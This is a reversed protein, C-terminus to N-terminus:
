ERPPREFERLSFAPKASIFSLNKAQIDRGEGHRKSQTTNLSARERLCVGADSLQNVM